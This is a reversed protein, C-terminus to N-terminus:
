RCVGALETQARAFDEPLGIDIFFGNTVFLDFQGAGAKRSFFDKELSFPTGPPFEDLCHRPLVYCGCSILGPGSGGKESFGTIRGGAVDLRGYRSTDSVECAVVMPARRAQWRAEAEATELEIYTDGNFVFVHDSACHELAMRVAGGTDLPIDEIEYVLTMGAFRNGFHGIIKEAMYGLPLIVRKFGKRSLFTLLIELFPRGAVPAMSKPLDGILHRLRTGFGGALVIAETMSDAM